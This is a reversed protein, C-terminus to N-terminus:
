LYSHMIKPQELPLTKMVSQYRQWNLRTKINRRKLWNFWIRTTEHWVKQLSRMNHTIGYYSYHGRLKANLKEQQHKLPKHRNARCWEGMAKLSVLRRRRSAHCVM